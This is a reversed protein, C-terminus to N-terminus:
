EPVLDRSKLYPVWQQPINKLREIQKKLQAATEQYYNTHDKAMAEFDEGHKDMLKCLKRYMEPPLPHTSEKKKQYGERAQLQLTDAVHVKAVVDDGSNKLTSRPAVGGMQEKGSPIRFEKHANADAVLGMAQLNQTTSIKDDWAERVADCNIKPLKKMKKDLRKRNIHYGFKQKRRLKRLRPM